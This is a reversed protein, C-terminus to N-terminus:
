SVPHTGYQNDDLTYFYQDPNREIVALWLRYPVFAVHAGIVAGAIQIVYRWNMDRPPVSSLLSMLLIFLLIPLIMLFIISKKLRNWSELYKKDRIGKLARPWDFAKWRIQANAVLGWFIAFFVCFITQPTNLSEMM